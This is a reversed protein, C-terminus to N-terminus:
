FEEINRKGIIMFALDTVTIVVAFIVANLLWGLLASQTISFMAADMIFIRELATTQMLMFGQVAVSIVLPIQFVTYVILMTLRESFFKKKYFAIYSFNPSKVADKYDRHFDVFSHETRVYTICTLILIVLDFILLLRNARAPADKAMIVIDMQEVFMFLLRAVIHVPFLILYWIVGKKMNERIRDRGM